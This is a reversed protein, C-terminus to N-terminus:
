FAKKAWKNYREALINLSVLTLTIAMGPFLAIWWAGFDERSQRLLGGWSPQDLPLGLGLFSLTSELLINASILFATSVLLVPLVNPIIHRIIIKYDSMGMLRANTIFDSKRIEMVEGRVLRMISVWGLCGILISTSWMTQSQLFAIFSLLLFLGPVARFIETFRMVIGDIPIYVQAIDWTKWLRSFLYIMGIGVLLVALFRLYSFSLEYGSTDWAFDYAYFITVFSGILLLLLSTWKLRLYSNGFYAALLGLVSGLVLAIAASFFGLILSTRTGHILISLVDRGRGETGLVHTRVTGKLTDTYGPPKFINNGDGISNPGFRSIWGHDSHALQDALLAVIILILLFSM